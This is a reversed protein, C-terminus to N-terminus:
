KNKLLKNFEPQDFQLELQKETESNNVILPVANLKGSEIMLYYRKEKEGTVDEFVALRKKTDIIHITLKRDKYYFGTLKFQYTKPDIKKQSIIKNAIPGEGTWDIFTTDNVSQKFHNYFDSPYYAYVKGKYQKLIVWKKWPIVPTVKSLKLKRKKLFDLSEKYSEQDFKLFKWYNIRKYSTSNKNNDFYISQATGLLPDKSIFITDNKKVQGFLSFTLGVLIVTLVYQQIAM